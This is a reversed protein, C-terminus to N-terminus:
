NHKIVRIIGKDKFSLSNPNNKYRNKIQGSKTKYSGVLIKSPETMITQFRM